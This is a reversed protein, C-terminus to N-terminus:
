HGKLLEDTSTMKRIKSPELPLSKMEYSERLWGAGGGPVYYFSAAVPDFVNAMEGGPWAPYGASDGSFRHALIGIDLLMGNKRKSIYYLPQQTQYDIWLQVSAMEDTTKKARGEIVVAYRLDWRDAALSLGSPGYNRDLVHPWGEGTANLPALVEQAGLYRWEYANPRLALGTFGKRMHETAQLNLGSTPAIADLSPNEGSAGRGIPVPGGGIESTVTYRPCYLGDVWATAARRQRRMSPVYVFIDDPQNWKRDAKNPRIQRWALHRANFPEEFEGGAVFLAKRAEDVRFESAALDARHGTRLYYWEGEYTEISGIRGPMDTIRFRGSPGAGRYRHQLNWAWRMPADEAEVDIGDPPFPLGAVYEKLNGKADLETREAFRETAEQYFSATPYRRHCPGLEMRMGDYFFAERFTWVEHPFLQALAMLDGLTLRMGERLRAVGDEDLPVSGGSFAPCQGEPPLQALSPTACLAVGLMFHTLRSCTSM